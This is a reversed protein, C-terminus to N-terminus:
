GEMIAIHTVPATMMTAKPSKSFNMAGFGTMLLDM